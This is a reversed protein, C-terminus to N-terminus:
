KGKRPSGLGAMTVFMDQFREALKPDFTFWSQILSEPSVKDINSLVQQQLKDMVATQMPALDPLGIFQRAELPTCDIEINVKMDWGSSIRAGPRLIAAVRYALCAVQPRHRREPKRSRRIHDILSEDAGMWGDIGTLMAACRHLKAREKSSHRKCPDLVRPLM